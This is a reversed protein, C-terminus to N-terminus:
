VDTEEKLKQSIVPILIRASMMMHLRSPAHAIKALMDIYLEEASMGKAYTVTQEQVNVVTPITSCRGAIKHVLERAEHSFVVVNNERAINMGLLQEMMEDINM